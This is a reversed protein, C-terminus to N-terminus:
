ITKFEVGADRMQLVTNTKLRDNDKFLIDLTIVKKPQLAIMKDVTPQDISDIAIILEGGNISYFNEIKEVKDTLLYGAKLMLEYLINVQGSSERVPNTFADLQEVLNEENIESGRWIRFNSPSLKFAKFGLDPQQTEKNDGFDIQEGKQKREAVQEAEIKKIVRRTRERSIDAITKYGAKYVESNEDCQEPLQVLIFKRNGGDENNLELVAQATTGSGAFFDLIICNRSLGQELITRILEKPKPFDFYEKDNFLSRLERTGQTNFVTNLVTSFGTFESELDKLFKKRRPRGDPNIPFIVEGNKILEQMRKPEYRWGTTPCKYVIGTSPDTLDYHLNPRQDPTALGVMNDSMWDGRPDNDPNSYKDLDKEAGRIIGRESKGYCIVYEHDVSAGKKSRSDVNQRRKWIFQAIFNEEGFIENMILRLNHVENDDIHVFIVGDDRLLNKALFLRPYMMSLWNSHYHGSDKSNKRFLDEKMLYGEEDKEGTRKRYEDRNEKFSDPYVFSDNGTNYPPDIIICKIKGYYSKQLVKLVELNEGEIFINGCDSSLFEEIGPVNSLAPDFTQSSEEKLPGVVSATPELKTVDKYGVAKTTPARDLIQHCNSTSSKQYLRGPTLSEEPQPKLTATTPIQLVRFAESKGAWNLVYRENNFNIDETFSAKFKEFDIRDETFIEPFGAKLRSLRDQLINLSEGNM